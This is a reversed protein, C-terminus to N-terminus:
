MSLGSSMVDCVVYWCDECDDLDLLSSDKTDVSLDNNGKKKQKDKSAKM